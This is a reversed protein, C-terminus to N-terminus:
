KCLPVNAQVRSAIWPVQTYKGGDSIVAWYLGNGPKITILGKKNLQNVYIKLGCNLNIMGDLITKKPDNVALNKDKNWDIGCGKVISGYNPIDQYSLQLYGESAVQKGTVPDTSMTTEVMRSTPKYGSERYIIGLIIEAHALRKNEVSLSKYKPCFKITDKANDFIIFHSQIVYYIYDSEKLRNKFIYEFTAQDIKGSVTLANKAQYVKLQATSKTGFIGDAATGIARQVNATDLSSYREWSLAVRKSPSIATTDVSATQTITSDGSTIPSSGVLNECSLLSASIVLIILIFRM